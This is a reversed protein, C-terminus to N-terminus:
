SENKVGDRETLFDMYSDMQNQQPHNVSEDSFKTQNLYPLPGPIYEGGNKVWDLSQKQFELTKIMDPLSPLTGNKRLHKWKALCVPKGQKRRGPYAKWWIEFEEDVGNGGPSHLTTKNVKSENVKMQPNRSNTTGCIGSEKIYIVPKDPISIGRNRYAFALGKLLNDSWIIKNQNWLETDIAELEALLNLIEEAKDKTLLTKAALYNLTTPKRCDLSHGETKGLLELLKFWFAYGDNGYRQEIIFMTEGHNVQHPFYDVTQKRPRTM